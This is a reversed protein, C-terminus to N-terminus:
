PLRVCAIAAYKRQPPLASSPYPLHVRTEKNILCKVMFKLLVSSKPRQPNAM